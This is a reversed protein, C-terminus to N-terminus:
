CWLLTLGGEALPGITVGIKRDPSETARCALCGRGVCWMKFGKDGGAGCWLWTELGWQRDVVGHIMDMENTRGESSGETAEV